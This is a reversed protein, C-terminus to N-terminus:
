LVLLEKPSNTIDECGDKTIVCVDEIRVGFQGPIYIGPEASLVAGEPLPNTEIPSANPAEHVDMGLSHGFSHSFYQGYGAEEIVRRAAADVDRGIVGARYTAIGALQARLVTDYVKKMEDTAYGIAVTRTMDSCYGGWLCGFDMTLFDGKQIVYEGPVGHPMSSKKGAVVIPEFSNGQAGHLLQRYTLEAAVRKETMGPKIFEVIEAFVADTIKQAARMKELEEPAKSARLERMLAQAPRMEAPVQERLREFVACTLDADEFGITKIGCDRVVQEIWVKQTMEQSSLTIDFGKIQATAAEIYRGDTIFFAEKPTVICIGDSSRFGTAFARNKMTYLLMADLGTAPLAAQLRQLNTM